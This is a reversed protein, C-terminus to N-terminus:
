ICISNCVVRILLDILKTPQGPPQDPVVLEVIAINAHSSFEPDQPLHWWAGHTAPSLYQCLLHAIRLTSFPTSEM